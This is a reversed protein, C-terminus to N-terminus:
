NLECHKCLCQLPEMGSAALSGLRLGLVKLGDLAEAAEPVGICMCEFSLGHLMERFGLSEADSVRTTQTPAQSVLTQLAPAQLIVM